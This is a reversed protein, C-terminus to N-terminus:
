LGNVPQSNMVLQYRFVCMLGMEQVSEPERLFASPYAMNVTAGGANNIIQLRGARALYIRAAAFAQCVALTSFFHEVTFTWSTWVNIRDAMFPAAGRFMPTNQLLSNSKPHFGERCADPKASLYPAGQGIIESYIVVSTQAGPPVLQVTRGLGM